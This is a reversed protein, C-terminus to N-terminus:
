SNWNNIYMFDTEKICLDQSSIYYGDHYQQRLSDSRNADFPNPCVNWQGNFYCTVKIDRCPTQGTSMKIAKEPNLYTYGRKPTSM